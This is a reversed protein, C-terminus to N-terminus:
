DPGHEAMIMSAAIARDAYDGAPDYPFITAFNDNPFIIGTCKEGVEVNSDTSREIIGEFLRASPVMETDDSNIKQAHVM